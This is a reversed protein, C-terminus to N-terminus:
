GAPRLSTIMRRINQYETTDMYKRAQELYPLGDAGPTKNNEPNYFAGFMAATPPWTFFHFIPCATNGSPAPMVTIGYAAAPTDSPGPTSSNGRTEFVYRPVTGSQVLAPLQQSEFEAFPYKETCTSGTAMNTRLTALPRGAENAVEAFAGGGEPLEGAPDRVTWAAPLDFALQGDATTFTKLAGKTPTPAATAAPATTATGAGPPVTRVPVTGAVTAEAIPPSPRQDACGGAAVAALVVVPLLGRFKKM